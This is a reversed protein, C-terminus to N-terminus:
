QAQLVLQGEAPPSLPVNDRDLLWSAIDHFLPAASQGGEGHVGRTPNDLMLAVVFRPNDAPAIGAFTIWYKSNSYAGTNPDVQQATGTKGAIQYGEVAAGAGTGQQIGAPDSQVVSRFMDVVTRATSESVVRTKKPAPQEIVKGTNDRIEAVIRPEIREGGNALTQYVGAMQLLTLSMGQGIPLNAFTGGSWQELQPRLGASESPLEIGTTQGIGFGTLLSDFRQEGLRQALMLTGVNSSKGFIGTTTYPTPGHDWADKVNVGAMDISGPVTLVEDPTSLRDEIVGAATIIKAVSGPEFPESVTSNGFKKGRDLQKQIDGMPNIADTNAMALVEATEVDLVVASAGKAGSNTKAQELQQQVYTQLDLDLTLTVDSGNMAAVQDRTTGPIIQGDTSVDVVTQGNIGSLLSDNSAEFGFQGQGDQSIKGIVNSAVSGNPYQRIDQIDAAIGHHQESISVAVDPDVNRVLVEYTTDADLKKRIEESKIESTSAGTEAIIRPIEESYSDLYDLVKQDIRKEREEKSLGYYNDVSKALDNNAVYRLEKRLNKPSVTLSRAQMTYALQQGSRDQIEGRRAPDTYVRYRQDAAKQSLEPGWVLQVWAMRGALLVCVGIAIVQVWRLRSLM